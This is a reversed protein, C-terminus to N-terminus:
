IDTEEMRLQREVIEYRIWNEKLLNILHKQEWKDLWDYDEKDIKVKEWLKLPIKEMLIKWETYDKNYLSSSSSFLQTISYLLIKKRVTSMRKVTYWNSIYNFIEEDYEEDDNSLYSELDFKLGSFFDITRSAM